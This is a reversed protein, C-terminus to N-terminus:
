TTVLVGDDTSEGPVQIRSASEELADLHTTIGEGDGAEASAQLSAAPATFLGFGVSGGTGKLWHALGALEAFDGCSLACRMASLKENLRVVFENVIERFESDEMPLSSVIPAAHGCEDAADGAAAHVHECNAQCKRQENNM